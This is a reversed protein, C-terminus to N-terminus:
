QSVGMDGLFLNAGGISRHFPLVDPNWCYVVALKVLRNNLEVFINLSVINRYGISKVTPNHASLQSVKAPVIESEIQMEDFVKSCLETPLGHYNSGQM